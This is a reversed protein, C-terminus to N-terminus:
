RPFPRHDKAHPVDQWTRVHFGAHDTDGRLFTALAAAIPVDAKLWALGTLDEARVWALQDHDQLPQPDAAPGPGGEGDDDPLEALWLRMALRENIPWDQDPAPAFVARLVVDVGLEEAVERVAAEAPDEGPEVKGGPFEWQGALHRPKTRRACLVRPSGASAGRLIAVAAVLQVGDDPLHHPTM